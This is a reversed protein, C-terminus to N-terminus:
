EVVKYIDKLNRGRGNYDLGFGVIFDNGIELGVYDLPVDKKLAKPKFLLTAVKIEKPRFASLQDLINDMSFGTDVIDELIVCTRGELNENLGILHKVSGSSNTGHYSAMKVFSIEADFDLNKFLDAAFMFAGNLVSIFVPEKGKLDENMKAAMEKIAGEIKEYPIFTEFKKDLVQITKM